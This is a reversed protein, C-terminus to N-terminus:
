GLQVSTVQATAYSTAAPSQADLWVSHAFFGNEFVGAGVSRGVGAGLVRGDGCGVCDGGGRGVACGVGEGTM